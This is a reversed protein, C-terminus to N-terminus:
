DATGVAYITADRLYFRLSVTRGALRASDSGSWRLPLRLGDANQVICKEREFGPIPKDRKDLLEAMIYAQRQADSAKDGHWPAAANLVLPKRPMAFRRTSFQANAWSAIGAVRHRPVGLAGKADLWVHRDRFVVPVHRLARGPPAADRERWPRRWAHVDTPEHTVWWEQALQPGHKNPKRDPLFDPTGCRMYPNVVQPSAAYLLMAGLVRDGYPFAQLWYFELEPPDQDDPLLLDAAPRRKGMGINRAPRWRVGDASTRHSLVRRTADGINDPYLKRWRQYTAQTFIFRSAAQCWFLGGADHDTYVPEGGREHRWRIGDPSTFAHAGHGPTGRSWAILLYSGTDSRRAMTKAGLWKVKRSLTHVKRPRSYRAFDRTTRRYLTQAGDREGEWTFVEYGGDPTDFAAVIHPSPARTGRIPKVQGAVSRLKGQPDRVDRLEMTLIPLGNEEASAHM